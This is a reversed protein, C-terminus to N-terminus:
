KKRTRQFHVASHGHSGRTKKRTEAQMKAFFPWFRGFFPEFDDSKRKVPASIMIEADFEIRRTSRTASHAHKQLHAVTGTTSAIFGHAIEHLFGQFVVIGPQGHGLRRASARGPENEADSHTPVNGAPPQGGRPDSRLTGSTRRCRCSLTRTPSCCCTM